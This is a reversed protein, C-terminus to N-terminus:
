WASCTSWQHKVLGTFISYIDIHISSNALLQNALPVLLKAKAQCLVACQPQICAFFCFVLLNHLQRILSPSRCRLTPQWHGSQLINLHFAFWQWCPTVMFPWWSWRSRVPPYSFHNGREREIAVTRLIHEEVTEQCSAKSLRQSEFNSINNCKKSVLQSIRDLEQINRTSISVPRFIPWGEQRNRTRIHHFAMLCSWEM